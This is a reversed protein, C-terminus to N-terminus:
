PSITPRCFRHNVIDTKDICTELIGNCYMETAIEHIEIDHCILESEPIAITGDLLTIKSFYLGDKTKNYPSFKGQRYRGRVKCIIDETFDGSNHKGCSTCTFSFM